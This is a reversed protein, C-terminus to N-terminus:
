KQEPPSHTVVPASPLAQVDALWHVLPKQVSPTQQVTAFHPVPSVQLALPVPVHAFGIALAHAASPSQPLPWQTSPTQQSL